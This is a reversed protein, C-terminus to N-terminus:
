HWLDYNKSQWTMGAKERLNLLEGRFIQRPGFLFPKDELWALSALAKLYKKNEGSSPPM